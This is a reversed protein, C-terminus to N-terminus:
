RPSVQPIDRFRASAIATLLSLWSLNAVVVVLGLLAMLYNASYMRAWIMVAVVIVLHHSFAILSRTVTRWVFTLLPLSTQRLIAAAQNFTECGETTLGSILSWIVIGLAVYPLFAHIELHFLQSYLVGLGVVMTGMSLTIWFPGLISGRYRSAIDHRALAWALPGRLVSGVLDAWAREFEFLFGVGGTRLITPSPSM